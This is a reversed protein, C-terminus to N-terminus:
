DLPLLAHSTWIFHSTGSWSTAGLCSPLPLVGGLSPHLPAGQPIGEPVNMLLHFLMEQPLALAQRLESMNLKPGYSFLLGCQEPRSNDTLPFWCGMHGTLWLWSLHQTCFQIIIKKLEQKTKNKKTRQSPKWGKLKCSCIILLDLVSVSEVRPLFNM